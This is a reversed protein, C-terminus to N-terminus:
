TLPPFNAPPPGSTIYGGFNAGVLATYEDETIPSSHGGYWMYKVPQLIPGYVTGASIDGNAGPPVGAITSQSIYGPSVFRAHSAPWPQGLQAVPYLGSTPDVLLPARNPWGAPVIDLLFTGDELMFVNTGVPQVPYYKALAVGQWNTRESTPGRRQDAVPFPPNDFAIPPTFYPNTVAM